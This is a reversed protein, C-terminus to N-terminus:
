PKTSAQVASFETVPVVWAPFKRKDPSNVALVLAIKREQIQLAGAESTTPPPAAPASKAPASPFRTNPNRQYGLQSAVARVRNQTVPPIRCSDAKGNLVRSVTSKNVGAAKAVDSIYVRGNM